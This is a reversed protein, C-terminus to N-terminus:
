GIVHESGKDMIVPQKGYEDLHVAVLCCGHEPPASCLQLRPLRLVWDGASESAQAFHAPHEDTGEVGASRLIRRMRHSSSDTLKREM